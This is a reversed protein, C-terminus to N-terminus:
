DKPMGPDKSSTKKYQLYTGCETLTFNAFQFRPDNLSHIGHKALVGSPLRKAEKLNEVVTGGKRKRENAVRKAVSSRAMGTIMRDLCDGAMGGCVNLSVTSIGSSESSDKSEPAACAASDDVLEKHELLKQNAPYWGRDAVAKRNSREDGYSKHFIRNLLPIIDTPELSLRTHSVLVFRGSTTQITSIHSSDRISVVKTATWWLCPSPVM